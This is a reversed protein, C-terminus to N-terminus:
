MGRGRRGRSHARSFRRRVVDSFIMSYTFLLFSLYSSLAFASFLFSPLLSFYLSLPIVFEMPECAVPMSLAYDRPNAFDNSGIVWRFVALAVNLARNDRSRGRCDIDTALSFDVRYSCCIAPCFLHLL